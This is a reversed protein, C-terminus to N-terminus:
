AQSGPPSQTARSIEEAVAEADPTTVILRAFDVGVLDVVVAPKRRGYVAVFDKGGSFRWTGLAVGRPWGTGPSRIGRLEEWPNDVARARRVSTLPIHADGRVFGGLREFFGVHLILEDGAIDLRAL